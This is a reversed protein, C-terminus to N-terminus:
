GGARRAALARVAHSDDVQAAETRQQRAAQERLLRERLAEAAKRRSVAGRLKERCAPLMEHVQSLLVRQERIADRLEAASHRYARGPRGPGGELLRKRASADQARLLAGLEDIRRRLFEARGRVQDFSWRARSERQQRLRVLMELRNSRRPTM